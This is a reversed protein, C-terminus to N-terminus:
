LIMRTITLSGGGVFIPQHRHGDNSISLQLKSWEWLIMQVRWHLPKFRYVLPTKPDEFYCSKLLWSEWTQRFRAGIGRHWHVAFLFVLFMAFATPCCISCWRFHIFGITLLPMFVVLRSDKFGHKKWWCFAKLIKEPPQLIDLPLFGWSSIM